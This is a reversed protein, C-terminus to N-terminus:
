QCSMDYLSMEIGVWYIRWSMREVRTLQRASDLRWFYGIIDYAPSGRRRVVSGIAEDIEPVGIAAVVSEVM